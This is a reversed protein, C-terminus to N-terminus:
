RRIMVPWSSASTVQHNLRSDLQVTLLKSLNLELGDRSRLAFNGFEFAGKPDFKRSSVHCEKGDSTIPERTEFPTVIRQLIVKGSQLM